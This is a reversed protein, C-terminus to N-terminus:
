ITAIKRLMGSFIFAHFPYLLWWYMRGALGRPRFTAIQSIEIESNDTEHMDFELWAEGPVKMEAFLILKGSQKDAMLVRWFDLPDGSKLEGPSRRGRRLGVGGVMKDLLGRLEWAWNMFYWGNKGGISWLKDKLQQTMSAPVKRSRKEKFCGYTPAEIFDHYSPDMVGSAIADKWSSTVLNQEIRQFALAVADEYAILQQPIVEQIRNDRALVDNKLSDVLNIALSYNVSTVFYLWYSSLKPTLVPLTLIYRRYGRVNAFGLLMEKYTLTEPGGIDFTQDLCGKNDLAEKLYHIVNRIAIPQLQSNLWRPAVMVPLKEVLDRIIEFSASGSGIIIAARLITHSINSTKLIEEVQKRSRLHTSLNEDHAIGSLYIVQQCQTPIIAEVFHKASKAELDEFGEKNSKMSHVLYYAFQIHAPFQLTSPDTLDGEIVLVQSRYNEPVVFRRQDRVLCYLTHGEELLVPMLRKGIYGSAGTLLINM